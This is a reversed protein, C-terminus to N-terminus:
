ASQVVALLENSCGRSDYAMDIHGAQTRPATVRVVCDFIEKYRGNYPCVALVTSKADPRDSFWTEIRDGIKVM